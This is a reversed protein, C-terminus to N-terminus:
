FLFFLRCITGSAFSAFTKPLLSGISMICSAFTRELCTLYDQKRGTKSDGEETEEEKKKGFPADLEAADRKSPSVEKEGKRGKKEETTTKKEEAALAKKGKKGKKGELKGKEKGKKEKSEGIEAIEKGKERAKESEREKKIESWRNGPYFM